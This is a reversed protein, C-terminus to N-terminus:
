AGGEVKAHLSNLMRAVHEIESSLSASDAEALYGLEKSLIVLYEVEALSSLSINLFRAYDRAQRRKSGEAINAPVSVAARRVQSTLGYREEAPFAATLRYIQLVLQHSRQWVALKRFDQM